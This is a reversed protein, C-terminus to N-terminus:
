TVAGVKLLNTTNFQNAPKYAAEGGLVIAGVNSAATNVLLQLTVYRTGSPLQDARVELSSVTNSTNTTVPISSAVNTAGSMNANASAQYYAQLNASAGVVGVDLYAILRRVTSMDFGNASNNAGQSAGITYATANTALNSSPMQGMVALAQTLQETFM